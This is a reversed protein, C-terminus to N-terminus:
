KDFESIAVIYILVYIDDFQQHLVKHWQDRYKRQGGVDIYQVNYKGNNCDIEREFYKVSGPLRRM